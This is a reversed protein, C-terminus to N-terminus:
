GYKRNYESISNYYNAFSNQFDFPNAFPGIPVAYPAGGASAYGTFTNTYPYKSGYTDGYSSDSYLGAGSSSSAYGLLFFLFVLILIM